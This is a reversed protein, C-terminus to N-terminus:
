FNFGGPSIKKQIFQFWAVSWLTGFCIGAAVDTPYHVALVIRSLGIFCALLFSLNIGILRLYRPVSSYWLFWILVTCFIFSSTTHGSPFSYDTVDPILPNPPRHRQFIQKLGECSLFGGIALSVVSLGFRVKRRWIVIGIFIVYAPFLFEFSGFFTVRIWFPLLTPSALPHTLQQVHRDFSNEPFVSIYVAILIFMLLAVFFLVHLIRDFNKIQAEAKM